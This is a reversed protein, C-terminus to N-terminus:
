SERDAVSNPLSLSHMMQTQPVGSDTDADADADADASAELKILQTSVSVPCLHM